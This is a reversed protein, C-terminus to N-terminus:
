KSLTDRSKRKGALGGFDVAIATPYIISLRTGRGKREREGIFKHIWSKRQPIEM